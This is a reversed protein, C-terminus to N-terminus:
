NERIFIFKFYDSTTNIELINNEIDFSEAKYLEFLLPSEWWICLLETLSISEFIIKNGSQISYLGTGNNCYGKIIINTSDIFTFIIKKDLSDPYFLTQNSSSEIVSNLYWSGIILESFENDSNNKECSINCLNVILFLTIFNLMKM